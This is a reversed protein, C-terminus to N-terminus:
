QQQDNFSLQSELAKILHMSRESVTKLLDEHKKKLAFYEGTINLATLLLVTRKNISPSQQIIQDEMKTVQSKLYDAVARAESLESETKFTFPQGLIEITVFNEV